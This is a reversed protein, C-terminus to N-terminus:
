DAEKNMLDDARELMVDKPNIWVKDCPECILKSFFLGKFFLMGVPVTLDKDCHPCKGHRVKQYEEETIQNNNMEEKKLSWKM